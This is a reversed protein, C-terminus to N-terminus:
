SDKSNIRLLMADFKAPDNKMLKKLTPIDIGYHASLRNLAQLQIANTADTNFKNQLDQGVNGISTFINDLAKAKAAQAQANAQEVYQTMQSNYQDVNLDMQRQAAQAQVLAQADASMKQGAFNAKAVRDLSANGTDLSQLGSRYNRTNAQLAPTASIRQPDLKFPRVSIQEVPQTAMIGKGLFELGKGGFYAIDGFTSGLGGSTNPGAPLANSMNRVDTGYGRQRAVVNNIPLPLNNSSLNNRSRQFDIDAIRNAEDERSAIAANEAVDNSLGAAGMRNTNRALPVIGDLLPAAGQTFNNWFSNEMGLGMSYAMASQIPGGIQYANAVGESMGRATKIAEQGEKLGQKFGKMRKITNQAIPDYGQKRIRKEAKGIKKSYKEAEEAYTNGSIPDKIDDSYVFKPDTATDVVEDQTLYIQQGDVMRPNTDVGHRGKIKLAESSLPIDGGKNFSTRDVKMPVKKQTLLQDLVGLADMGLQAGQLIGGLAYKNKHKMDQTNNKNDVFAYTDKRPTQVDTNVFDKLMRKVEDKGYIDKLERYEHQAPHGEKTDLSDLFEDTIETQPTMDAAHRLSMIRPYTESSSYYMESGLTTNNDKLIKNMEAREAKSLKRGEITYANQDADKGSKSKFTVGFKNELERILLTKTANLYYDDLNTSHTLEHIATSRTDEETLNIDSKYEDTLYGQAETVVDLYRYLDWIFNRNGIKPDEEGLKKINSVGEM